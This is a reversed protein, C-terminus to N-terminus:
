LFIFHTEGLKFEVLFWGLGWDKKIELSYCVTIIENQRDLDLMQQQYPDM